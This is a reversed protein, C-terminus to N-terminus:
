GEDPDGDVVLQMNPGTREQMESRATIYATRLRDKDKPSLHLEAIDNAVENLERMTTALELQGILDPVKSEDEYVMGVIDELSAEVSGNYYLSLGFQDGLNVACRKFAQSEATKIAHDHADARSPFNTADGAAWETYSVGVGFPDGIQLTCRARYIVSWRPKKDNGTVEQESVLEMTTVNASWNGFGFIRNMTRRVDWVELHSFGKGDRKLRAPDIPELLARIQENSFMKTRRM